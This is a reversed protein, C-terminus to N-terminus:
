LALIPRNLLHNVRELVALSLIQILNGFKFLLYDIAKGLLLLLKFLLQLFLIRLLKLKKFLQLVLQVSLKISLECFDLLVLM